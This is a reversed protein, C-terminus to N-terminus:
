TSVHRTRTVNTLSFDFMVGVVVVFVVRNGLLLVGKDFSFLSDLDEIELPFFLFTSFSFIRYMLVSVLVSLFGLIILGGAVPVLEELDRRFSIEANFVM